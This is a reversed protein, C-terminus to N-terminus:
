NKAIDKVYEAAMREHDANQIVRGLLKETAQVVLQATEARLEAIAEEKQRQIERQAEALRQHKVADAEEAAKRIIGEAQQKGDRIIQVMETQANAIREKAQRLVEQAEANALEAGAINDKIAQERSALGNM